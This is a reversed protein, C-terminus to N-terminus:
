KSPVPVIREAFTTSTERASPVERVSSPRKTIMAVPDVGRVIGPNV